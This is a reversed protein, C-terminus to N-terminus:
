QVSNYINDNKIRYPTSIRKIDEETFGPSVKSTIKHRRYFLLEQNEADILLQYSYGKNNNESASVVFAVVTNESSEKIANSVEKFSGLRM